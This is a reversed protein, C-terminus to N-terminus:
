PPFGQDYEQLQTLGHFLIPFFDKQLYQPPYVTSNCDGNRPGVVLRNVSSPEGTGQLFLLQVPIRFRSDPQCTLICAWYALSAEAGDLPGGWGGTRCQARYWLYFGLYYLIVAYLATIEVYVAPILCSFLFFPFLRFSSVCLCCCLSYFLIM